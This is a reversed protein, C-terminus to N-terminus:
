FFMMINNMGRM